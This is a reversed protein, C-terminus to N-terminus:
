TNSDEKKLFWNVLEEINEIKNIRYLIKEAKDRNKLFYKKRYGNEIFYNEFFYMYNYFKYKKSFEYGKILFDFGKKHGKEVLYKGATYLLQLIQKSYINYDLIEKLYKEIKKTSLLGKEIEIIKLMIKLKIKTSERLKTKEVFTKINEYMLVLKKKNGTELYESFFIDLYIQYPPTNERRLARNIHYLGEKKFKPDLTNFYKIFLASTTIDIKFKYNLIFDSLINAVKKFGREYAFLMILIYNYPVEVPHDTELGYLLGEYLYKINNEINLLNLYSNALNTTILPLTNMNMKEKNLQYAKKFYKISKLIDKKKKTKIYKNSYIIGMDNYYFNLLNLNKEKDILRYLVKLSREAEDLKNTHIKISTILSYYETLLKKDKIKSKMVKLEDMLKKIIEKKLTYFFYISLKELKYRFHTDIDFRNKISELKKFHKIIQDFDANANEEISIMSFYYYIDFGFNESYIKAIERAKESDRAVSVLSDLISKLVDKEIKENKNVLEKLKEYSKQISNLNTNHISLKPYFSLINKLHQESLNEISLLKEYIHLSYEFNNLKMFLSLSKIYSQYANELDEGLLFFDGSQLISFPNKDDKLMERAVNLCIQSVRKKVMRDFIIQKIISHYFASVFEEKRNLIKIEYASSLINLDNKEKISISKLVLDDRFQDGIVSGTEVFEKTIEPLKDFKLLVLEKLSYPLGKIDIKFSIYGKNNEILKENILFSLFQELYLPNGFSIKMINELDKENIDMKSYIKIFNRVNQPSFNSLTIKEVNYRLLKSNLFDLKSLERGSFIININSLDSYLLWKFLDISKSDIYQSDDVVVIIKQPINKIITKFKDDINNIKETKTLLASFQPDDIAFKKITEILSLISNYIEQRYSCSVYYNKLNLKQLIQKIFTTKGIGGEGELLLCAKENNLFNIAKKLEDERGVFISSEKKEFIEEVSFIRIKRDLGKFEFEGLDKFNITDKLQNYFSGDVFIRFYDGKVAIRAALNINTGFFTYEWRKDNGIIGAYGKNLTCGIKIKIDMKKAEEISKKFFKILKLPANEVSIPLGCVFLLNWGKDAFEIKNLYINEFDAENIIFKFFKEIHDLEYKNEINLFGAPIIRLEGHKESNKFEKIIPPFDLNIKDEIDKFNISSSEPYFYLFDRKTGHIIRPYYNNEMELIKYGLYTKQSFNVNSINKNFESEIIKVREQDVCFMIGDGAFLLVNGENEYIKEIGKTFIENIISSIIEAGYESNKIFNETTSTFNSVDIFYTKLL